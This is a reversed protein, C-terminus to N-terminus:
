MRSRARCCKLHQVCAYDCSKATEKKYKKLANEVEAFFAATYCQRIIKSLDDYPMPGTVKNEKFLRKLNDEFRWSDIALTCITDFIKAVTKPNLAEKLAEDANVTPGTNSPDNIKEINKRLESWDSEAVSSLADCEESKTIYEQISKM